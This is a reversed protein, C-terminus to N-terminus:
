GAAVERRRAARYQPASRKVDWYYLRVGYLLRMGGQLLRGGVRILFPPASEIIDLPVGSLVLTM